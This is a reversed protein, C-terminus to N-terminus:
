HCKTKCQCVTLDIIMEPAPLLTTMIAEYLSNKSDWKWGYDEPDPLSPSPLHSSKWQLATYHARFVKQCFAERTPPLKKAELQQKSFMHWRLEALNSVNLPVKNRCYLQVVFAELSTFELDSPVNSTGLPNLVEIPSTMFTEWCSKKAFGSFKGTQDCGSIAHFGLLEKCNNPRLHEHITRLIYEHETTKSITSSTLNDFYHLLILLVDTDSCSIVLEGCQDRKSVDLAHLVIGTDAEECTYNTHM